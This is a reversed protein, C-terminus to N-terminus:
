RARGLQKNRKRIFTKMDDDEALADSSPPSATVPTIPAPAKSPEKPKKPEALLKYELKGVERIQARVGLAAIRQAEKPNKGLYYALDAANDAEMIAAILPSVPKLEGVVEDFDDYKDEAKSVKEEWSSVLAEQDRKMMETQAQKQLAEVASKSKFDSLAAAYKEPDYDFQALTPAGSPEAPRQAARAENLQKELFEARAQAEAARQYAKGLRREFRRGERKAAQEPTVEEPPAPTEEAPKEGEPKTVPAQAAKNRDSDSSPAIVEAPEDEPIVFRARQQPAPSAQPKAPLPPPAKSQELPLTTQEPM